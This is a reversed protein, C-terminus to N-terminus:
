EIILKPPPALKIPSSEAIDADPDVIEPRKVPTGEDGLPQARLVPQVSGFPDGGLVTLGQMRVPEIHSFKAADPNLSEMALLGTYAFGPAVDEPLGEGTHVTCYSDFVTGPRLHEEYTCRVSKVEGGTKVQEYCFDTARMGSKRCLEIRESNEPPAIEAAPHNKQSANMIDSWIPLAIRNSFAGIYIPKLKDFGVWVGCTIDSTYGFTWLDKFEYHTGTKAAAPYGGLGFEAAAASGTGRRLAEVMCSHTQYAAVPDIAEVSSRDEESIQFVVNESADTVRQILHLGNPRRGKNPFASYALCLEDMKMESAGLFSAPYERLESRIGARQALSRVSALGQKWDQLPNSERPMGSRIRAAEDIRYGLRVTASNRSNVLAERASINTEAYTSQLSETGWEGLIGTLGGIMVYRNDLPNDSLPTGPFFEPMSFATAYVFPTFATGAPRGISGDPPMARNFQSDLFDRGGVMALISGDKNDLVLASGQLYEPKPRPTAPNITGAALKAKFDAMTAKFQNYTQHQFAPNTEVEGLRKRVADEAAKQLAPDITTYIQFGGVAARDQGVLKGVEQRVEEYVYTLQPDAAQPATIMPRAKLKAADAETLHGEAEMRDLVQNRAEVAEEPHRLPSLRNPSKIIGCLTAAEETSLEKVEKGFYGKAAAQIGYFGAGFYVRNLYMELIETKSYHEEVRNALFAELIKRKYTRELLNFSQRSLQQTITSAGQTVEGARFNLYIARALGIYDVGNHKFFRSDEQATLAAIVHAPVESIPVPRRNLMYIRALEGGNRDYVISASELKKMQDLDFTEAKERLPQVLFMFVGFGTVGALIFIVLLVSFWTRRYFPM